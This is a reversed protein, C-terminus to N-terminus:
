RRSAFHEEPPLWDASIPPAPNKVPIRMGLGAKASGSLPERQFPLGSGTLPGLRFRSKRGEFQWAPPMPKDENQGAM